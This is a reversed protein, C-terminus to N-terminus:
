KILIYTIGVFLHFKEGFSFDPSNLYGSYVGQLQLKVNKWGCRITLAPEAFFHTKGELENLSEIRYSSLSGYSNVSSFNVVSLRTSFATEFVNYRMGLSPQLFFKIFSINSTGVGTSTFTGMSYTMDSYNHHQSGGGAGTYVEFSSNEGVPQFYGAGLEVSTGRADFKGVSHGGWATLFNGTLAFHAGTAYAGQFEVANSEDGFGYGGAIRFENKTRFVPVNQTNPIYYYHSCGALYFILLCIACALDKIHFIKFM